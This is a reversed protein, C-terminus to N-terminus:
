PGSRSRTATSTAPCACGRTRRARAARAGPRRRLADDVAVPDCDADLSGARASSRRRRHRAPRRARLDRCSRRRAPRPRDDLDLRVTGPGHPLDLTRAYWGTAPPRSARCPTAPSSTSCRRSRRVAHPRGAAHTSRGPRRTRGGRRGRLETPRRPTCRACPTTSSGSAPSARRRLRHRRVAPRHDRDAGARDPRAARPGAGAPRRRARRHAAPQLHRARTASGRAGPRSARRPRRRRRRDAADRPRRRRGRRGVGPHGPDRRAPVAQLRPLRRGPRRGRQPLVDVNDCSPTRAPCSPRCYIGTTRVATYFVGDFRRDRRSAGRPLVGRRGAEPDHTTM